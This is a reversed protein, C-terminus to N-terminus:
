PGTGNGQNAQGGPSGNGQQRGPDNEPVFVGNEYRVLGMDIPDGQAQLRLRNAHSVGDDQQFSFDGVNVGQFQVEWAYTTEIAVTLGFSGDAAVPSAVIDDASATAVVTLDSPHLSDTAKAPISAALDASADISATDIMGTVERTPLDATPNGVETASGCAAGAILFLLAIAWRLSKM